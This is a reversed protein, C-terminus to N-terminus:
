ESDASSSRPSLPPQVQTDTNDKQGQITQNGWRRSLGIGTSHGVLVQAVGRIHPVRAM